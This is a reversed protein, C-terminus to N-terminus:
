AYEQSETGVHNVLANPKKGPSRNSGQVRDCYGTEIFSIQEEVIFHLPLDPWASYKRELPFLVGCKYDNTTIKYAKHQNPCKNFFYSYEEYIVPLSLMCWSSMTYQSSCEVNM